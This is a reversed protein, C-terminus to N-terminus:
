ADATIDTFSHGSADVRSISQQFYKCTCPCPAFYSNAHSIRIIASCCSGTATCASICVESCYTLAHCGISQEQAGAPWQLFFAASSFSVFLDTTSSYMRLTSHWRLYPTILEHMIHCSSTMRQSSAYSVGREPPYDGRQCPETATSADAAVHSM